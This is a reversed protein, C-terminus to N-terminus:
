FYIEFPKTYVYRYVCSFIPFSSKRSRFLIFRRAQITCDCILDRDYFLRSRLFFTISVKLNLHSASISPHFVVFLIGKKQTLSLLSDFATIFHFCTSTRALSPLKASSRSSHRTGFLGVELPPPPKKLLCARLCGWM